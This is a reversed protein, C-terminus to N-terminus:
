WPPMEMQEVIQQANQQIMEQYATAVSQGGEPIFTETQGVRLEYDALPVTIRNTLLEGQPGVWDVQCVMEGEIVRPVDFKDEAITRKGEYLIRGRLVSDARDGSVVRYPTKLQIEKVVAETLQEGLNRRFSNSEFIPVSITHIDPRYLAQQGVRYGACGSCALLVLLLSVAQRAAPCDSMHSARAICCTSRRLSPCAKLVKFPTTMDARGQSCEPHAVRNGAHWVTETRVEREVACRM